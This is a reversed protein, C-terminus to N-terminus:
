GFDPDLLPPVIATGPPRTQNGLPNTLDQDDAAQALACHTPKGACSSPGVAVTQRILPTM